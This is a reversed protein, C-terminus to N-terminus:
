GSLKKVLLRSLALRRTLGTRMDVAHYLRPDISSSSMGRVRTACVEDMQEDM